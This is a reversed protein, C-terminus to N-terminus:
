SETKLEAHKLDSHGVSYTLLKLKKGAVWGKLDNQCHNPRDESMERLKM